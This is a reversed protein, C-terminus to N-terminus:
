WRGLVGASQVGARGQAVAVEWSRVKRRAGDKGLAGRVMVTQRERGIDYVGYQAPDFRVENVAVFGHKEYLPKATDTGELYVEVGLDDAERLITDLLMTGAGEHQHCPQTALM